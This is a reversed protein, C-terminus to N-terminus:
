AGDRLVLGCIVVMLWTPLRGSTSHAEKDRLAFHLRIGPIRCLWTISIGLFDSDAYKMRVNSSTPRHISQLVNLASHELLEQVICASRGLFEQPM